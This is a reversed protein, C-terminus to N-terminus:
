TLTSIDVYPNYRPKPGAAAGAAGAAALESARRQQQQASPLAQYGGLKSLRGSSGEWSPAALLAALPASVPGSAAAAAAEAAAGGRGVDWDQQQQQQQWRHQPQQQQPQRPPNGNSGSPATLDASRRPEEGTVGLILVSGSSSSSCRSSVGGHKCGDALAAGGGAATQM